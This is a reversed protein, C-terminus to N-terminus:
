TCEAILAVMQNKIVPLDAVSLLAMGVGNLNQPRVDSRVLKMLLEYDAPDARAM